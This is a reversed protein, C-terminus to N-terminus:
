MFQLLQSNELINPADAVQDETNEEVSDDQDDLQSIPDYKDIM